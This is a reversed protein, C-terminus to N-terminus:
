PRLRSPVGTEPSRAAVIERAAAAIDSAQPLVAEELPRTNPIPFEHATV